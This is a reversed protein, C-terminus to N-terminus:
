CHETKIISTDCDCSFVINAIPELQSGIRQASYVQVTGTTRSLQILESTGKASLFAAMNYVRNGQNTNILYNGTTLFDPAPIGINAYTNNEGANSDLLTTGDVNIVQIRFGKIKYPVIGGLFFAEEIALALVALKMTNYAAVAADTNPTIPTKLFAIIASETKIATTLMAIMAKFHAASSATITSTPM